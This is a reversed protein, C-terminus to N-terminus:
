LDGKKQELIVKRVWEMASNQDKMGRQVLLMTGNSLVAVIDVGSKTIEPMFYQVENLDVVTNNGFIWSKMTSVKCPQKDVMSFAQKTDM